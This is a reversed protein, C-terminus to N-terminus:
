ISEMLRKVRGRHNQHVILYFLIHEIMRQKCMSRFAYPSQKLQHKEIISLIYALDKRTHNKIFEPEHAYKAIYAVCENHTKFHLNQM